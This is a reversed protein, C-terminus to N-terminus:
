YIKFPEIKNFVDSTQLVLEINVQRDSIDALKVSQLLMDASSKYDICKVGTGLLVTSMNFQPEHTNNVAVNLCNQYCQLLKEDRDSDTNYPAVTHIVGLSFMHRRDQHGTVPSWVAAGTPCRVQDRTLHLRRMRDGGVDTDDARACTSVHDSLWQRMDGGDSHLEGDLTQVPYVMSDGASLGGWRTSMQWSGPGGLVNNVRPLGGRPFYPLATGVMYENGSNILFRPFKTTVKKGIDFINPLIFVDIRVNKVSVTAVSNM